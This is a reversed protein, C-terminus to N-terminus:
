SRMLIKSAKELLEDSLDLPKGDSTVIWIMTDSYSKSPKCIYFIRDDHVFPALVKAEVPVSIIQGKVFIM